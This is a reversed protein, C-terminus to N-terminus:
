HERVIASGIIETQFTMALDPSLAFDHSQYCLQLTVSRRGDAGIYESDLVQVRSIILGGIRWITHKLAALKALGRVPLWFSLDFLYQPPELSPLTLWYKRWDSGLELPMPEIEWLDGQSDPQLIGQRESKTGRFFTVPCLDGWPELHLLCGLIQKVNPDTLQSVYERFQEIDGELVIVSEISESAKWKESLLQRVSSQPDLFIRHMQNHCLHSYVRPLQSSRQAWSNPQFIHITPNTSSFGKDLSRYGFARYAPSFARLDCKFCDVLQFGGFSMMKVIQWSNAPERARSDILTGGQGDTLAVVVQSQAHTVENLSQAFDKLLQRNKEIRMKGGVHPFMFMVRDFVTDPFSESLQTADIGLAVNAGLDLLVAANAQAEESVFHKEFCTCSIDMGDTQARSELLGRSEEPSRGENSDKHTWTIEDDLLFKYYRNDFKYKDDSKAKWSGTYGSGERNMEGLTHAGLIAVTQRTNLGFIRSMTAMVEGHDMFGQPFEHLDETDPTSPCDERGMVYQIDPKPMVVCNPDQGEECVINNYDVTTDVAVIGALNFFDGRSMQKGQFPMNKEFFDNVEVFVSELGGNAPNGFNLCGDCFGVCDHFALRLCAPARDIDEELFGRILLKLSDVEALTWEDNYSAMRKTSAERLAPFKNSMVIGNDVLTNAAYPLHPSVVGAAESRTSRTAVNSPFLVQGLANRLGDPGDQSHFARWTEMAMAHVTLKNFSSLGERKEDDTKDSKEAKYFTEDEKPIDLIAKGVPPSFGEKSLWSLSDNIDDQPWNEELNEQIGAIEQNAEAKAQESELVWAMIDDLVKDVDEEEKDEEFDSVQSSELDGALSIGSSVPIDDYIDDLTQYKDNHPKLVRGFSQKTAKKSDEEQSSEDKEGELNDLSDSTVSLIDDWNSDMPEFLGQIEELIDPLSPEQKKYPRFAHVAEATDRIPRNCPPSPHLNYDLESKVVTPYEPLPHTPRKKPEVDEDNLKLCEWHTKSSEGLDSWAYTNHSYTPPASEQLCPVDTESPLYYQCGCKEDAEPRPSKPSDPKLAPGEMPVNLSEEMMDDWKFRKFRTIEPHSLFDMCNSKFSSKRKREHLFEDRKKVQDSKIRVM